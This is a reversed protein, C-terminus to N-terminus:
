PGVQHLSWRPKVQPNVCWPPWRHNSLEILTEISHARLLHWCEDSYGAIHPTIVVNEFRLLPNDSPTPEQEFVDLGAAAIWGQSLARILASEDIVSGRSTNILVAEPRCLKLEHEGILHYTEDTLPAHISIFDSSRLLEDQSVSEVGQEAMTVADIAPDAAVIHMQMGSMKRATLQGIRGFGILGLRQGVFHWGPWAHERDWKGRRLARDQAAIQRVVSFLLGIAHEAVAHAHAEPTNAVVIGLRTAQDTPINDTGSGSRLIAGCRDLQDLVGATVVRSGSAVWLVDTDKALSVVEEPSDCEQVVLAIGHEALKAVM